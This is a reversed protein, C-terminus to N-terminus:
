ADQSRGNRAKDNRLPVDVPAMHLLLDMILGIRDTSDSPMEFVLKRGQRKTLRGGRRKVDPLPAQDHLHVSIAKPGADVRAVGAAVCRQRLHALELLRKAADPLPGFRDVVEDEIDELVDISRAKAIRDYLELRAEAEAIFSAPLMGHLEINLHPVYDRLVKKGRARSTAQVLLHRYLEPGVLNVHGAQQEGLLDGAGRLDLDHGSITFGAGLSQMDQLASLRRESVKGLAADPDTM